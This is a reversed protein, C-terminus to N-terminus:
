TTHSSTESSLKGMILLLVLHAPHTGRMQTAQWWAGPTWSVPASILQYSDRDPHVGKEEALLSEDPHMLSGLKHPPSLDLRKRRLDTNSQQPFGTGACSFTVEGHHMSSKVPCTQSGQSLNGLKPRRSQLWWSSGRHVLTGPGLSPSATALLFNEAGTRLQWSSERYTM